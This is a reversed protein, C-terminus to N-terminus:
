YLISHGDRYEYDCRKSLHVLCNHAQSNLCQDMKCKGVGVLVLCLIFFYYQRCNLILLFCLHSPLLKSPRIKHTEKLPFIFKSTWSCTKKFTQRALNKAIGLQIRQRNPTSIVALKTSRIWHIHAIM